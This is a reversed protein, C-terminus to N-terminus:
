GVQYVPDSSQLAKSPGGTKTHIVDGLVRIQMQRHTAKLLAPSTSFPSSSLHDLQRNRPYITGSRASFYMYKCGIIQLFRCLASHGASAGDSRRAVSGITLPRNINHKRPVSTLSLAMNTGFDDPVNQKEAPRLTPEFPRKFIRPSNQSHPRSSRLSISTQHLSSLLRQLDMQDVNLSRPTENLM